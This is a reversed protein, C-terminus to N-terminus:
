TEISTINNLKSEFDGISNCLVAHRHLMELTETDTIKNIKEILNEPIKEFKINLTQLLLRQIEQQMGDQIGKEYGEKLAIREISLVYPM